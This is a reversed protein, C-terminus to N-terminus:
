AAVEPEPAAPRRGLAGLGALALLVPLGAPLLPTAALAIAGGVGAARATRKDKLAPLVLALLVAPFAADLGFTNTDVSGGVLVGGLVGLNWTLYLLVGCTLFAARRRAPDRQAITFAVSEDIMVHSGLLKVWWRDGFVDAVAFGFPLHRANLVLGTLVAAVPGGGALVVGVASFQAGGAFVLLSLAVPVWGPLGGAVALAGFSAGIVADTLCVLGIDRLLGPGLTRYLSRM